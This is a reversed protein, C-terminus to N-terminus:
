FHNDLFQCGSKEKETCFQINGVALSITFLEIFYGM